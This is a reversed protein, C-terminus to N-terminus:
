RLYKQSTCNRERKRQLIKEALVRLRTHELDKCMLSLTIFSHVYCLYTCYQFVKIIKNILIKNINDKLSVFIRLIKYLRNKRIM